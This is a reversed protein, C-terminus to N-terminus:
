GWTASDAPLKLDDLKNIIEQIQSKQNSVLQKLYNEISKQIQATSNNYAAYGNGGGIRTLADTPTAAPKAIVGELQRQTEALTKEATRQEQKLGAEQEKLSREAERAAAAETAKTAAEEAKRRQETARAADQQSRRAAEVVPALAALHQQAKTLEGDLYRLHAAAEVAAEGTDDRHARIYDDRENSLRTVEAQRAEQVKFVRDEGTLKEGTGKSEWWVKGLGNLLVQNEREYSQLRERERLETGHQQLSQEASQLRDQAAKELAESANWLETAAGTLAGVAGGLAAGVATGVVPVVSGIAAGLMVGQGAGTLAAAGTDLGVRASSGEETFNEGVWKVANGAIGFGRSAVGALQKANIEKVQQAVKGLDSSMRSASESVQDEMRKVADTAAGTASAFGDTAREVDKMSSSMSSSAQKVDSTMQSAAAKVKQKAEDAGSKLEKSDVTFRINLDQTPM